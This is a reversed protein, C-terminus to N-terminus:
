FAIEPTEIINSKNLARDKIQIKFKLTKLSFQTRLFQSGIRFRIVGQLPSGTHDSFLIPFRGDFSVGCNPYDYEKTFDFETFTGNPNKVMFDIEFNHHDPNRMVYITDTVIDNVTIVQWNICSYPKQFAPLAAYDPNTRKDKYSIPTRDPKLITFKSTYCNSPGNCPTSTDVIGYEGTESNRYLLHVTNQFCISNDEDSLNCYTDSDALGLDGDGDTFTIFFTLSDMGDVHKYIMKDFEIRPEVPFEPAKFCASALIILIGVWLM